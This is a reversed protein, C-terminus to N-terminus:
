AKMSAPHSLERRCEIEEHTDDLNVVQLSPWTPVSLLKLAPIIQPSLSNDSLDLVRLKSLPFPKEALDSSAVVERAALIERNNFLRFPILESFGLGLICWFASREKLPLINCGRARFEALSDAVMLDSAYGLAGLPMGGEPLEGLLTPVSQETPPDALDSLAKWVIAEHGASRDQLPPLKLGLGLVGLSARTADCGVQRISNIIGLAAILAPRFAIIFGQSSMACNSLRLTELNSLGALSLSLYFLDEDSLENRSFDLEKLLGSPPLWPLKGGLGCGVASFRVFEPAVLEPNVTKVAHLLPFTRRAKEGLSCRELSLSELLPKHLLFLQFCDALPEDMIEKPPAISDYAAQVDTDRRGPPRLAPSTSSVGCTDVDVWNRLTLDRLDPAFEVIQIIAWGIARSPHERLGYMLQHALPPLTITLTELRPFSVPLRALTLLSVGDPVELSLKRLWPACRVLFTLHSDRLLAQNLHLSRVHGRQRLARCTSLVRVQDRLSLFELILSLERDLVSYIPPQRARRTVKPPSSEFEELARKPNRRVSNVEKKDIEALPVAAMRPWTRWGQNGWPPPSHKAQCLVRCAIAESPLARRNSSKPVRFRLEMADHSSGHDKAATPAVDLRSNRDTRSALGLNRHCPALSAVGAKRLELYQSVM